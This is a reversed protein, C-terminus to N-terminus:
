NYLVHGPRLGPIKKVTDSHPRLSGASSGTAFEIDFAKCFWMITIFHLPHTKSSYIFQVTNQFFITRRLVMNLILVGSSLLNQSKKATSEIGLTFKVLYESGVVECAWQDWMDVNWSFYTEYPMPLKYMTDAKKRHWWKRSSWVFKSETCAKVAFAQM